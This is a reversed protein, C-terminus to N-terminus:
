RHLEISTKLFDVLSWGPNEASAYRKMLKERNRAKEDPQAAAAPAATVPPPEASRNPPDKHGTAQPLTHLDFAQKVYVEFAERAPCDNSCIGYVMKTVTEPDLHMSACKDMFAEVFAIHEEATKTVPVGTLAEETVQERRRQAEEEKTRSLELVMKAVDSGTSAGVLGGALPLLGTVTEAATGQTPHMNPVLRSGALFGMAGGAGGLLGKFAAPGRHGKDALLAGIGASPIGFLAAARLYDGGSAKKEPLGTEKTSAFHHLQEHSMSKAMSAAAGGEAKAKEPHHEVFGALRRQAKSVAPM